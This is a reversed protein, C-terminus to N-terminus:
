SPIGWSFVSNGMARPPPPKSKALTRLRPLVRGPLDEVLEVDRSRLVTGVAAHRFGAPPEYFPDKAPLVPRQGCRLEEHPHLRDM